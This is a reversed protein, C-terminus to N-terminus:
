AQRRQGRDPPMAPLELTSQWRQRGQLLHAQALRNARDKAGAAIAEFIRRHENNSRRM